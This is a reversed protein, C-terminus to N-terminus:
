NIFSFSIWRGPKVPISVTYTMGDPGSQADVFSKTIGAINRERIEYGVPNKTITILGFAKCNRYMSVLDLVFEAGKIVELLKILRINSIDIKSKEQQIFENWGDDFYKDLHEILLHQATRIEHNEM